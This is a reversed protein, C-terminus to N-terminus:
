EVHISHTSKSTTTRKTEDISDRFFSVLKSIGSDRGGGRRRVGVAERKEILNGCAAFRIAGEKLRQYAFNDVMDINQTLALLNRIYTM